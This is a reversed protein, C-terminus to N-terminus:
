FDNNKYKIINILYCCSFYNDYYKILFYNNSVIYIKIFSLDIDNLIDIFMNYDISFSFNEEFNSCVEIKNYMNSCSNSISFELVNKDKKLIFYRNDKGILESFSKVAKKMKKLDIEIFKDENSFLNEFSFFNIFNNKILFNFNLYSFSLYKNSVSCLSKDTFVKKLNKFILPNIFFDYKLKDENTYFIIKDIKYNYLFYRIRDTGLIKISYDNNSLILKLNIFNYNDNLFDSSTDVYKLLKNLHEFFTKNLNFQFDKDLNLFVKDIDIKKIGYYVQKSDEVYAEIKNEFFHINIKESGLDLIVKNLINLFKFSILYAEQKEYICSISDYVICKDDEFYLYLKNDKLIFAVEKDSDYIVSIKKFLSVFDESNLNVKNHLIGATLSLTNSENSTM